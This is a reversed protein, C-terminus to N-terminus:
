ATPQHDRAMEELYQSFKDNDEKELDAGYVVSVASRPDM